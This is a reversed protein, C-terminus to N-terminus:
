PRCALHMDLAWVFHRAVPRELLFKPWLNEQAGRANLGQCKKDNRLVRTIGNRLMRTM